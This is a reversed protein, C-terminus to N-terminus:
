RRGDDSPRKAEEFVRRREASQRQQRQQLQKARLRQAERRCTDLQAELQTCEALLVGDETLEKQLGVVMEDVRCSLTDGM